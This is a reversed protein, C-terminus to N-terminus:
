CRGYDYDKYRRNVNSSTMMDYRYLSLHCKQFNIVFDNELVYIFDSVHTDSVLEMNTFKIQTLAIEYSSSWGSFM